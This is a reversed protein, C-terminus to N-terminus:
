EPQISNWGREVCVSGQRTGTWFDRSGSPQMEGDAFRLTAQIWELELEIELVWTSGM